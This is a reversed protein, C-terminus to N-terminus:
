PLKRKSWHVLAKKLKDENDLELIRVKSKVSKAQIIPLFLTDRKFRCRFLYLEVKQIKEIVSAFMNDVRTFVDFINVKDSAIKVYYVGNEKIDPKNEHYVVVKITKIKTKEIFTIEM